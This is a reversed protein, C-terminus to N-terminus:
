WQVLYAQAPWFLSTTIAGGTFVIALLLAVLLSAIIWQDDRKAEREERLTDPRLM